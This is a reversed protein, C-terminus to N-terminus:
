SSLGEESGDEGGRQHGRRQTERPQAGLAQPDVLGEGPVHRAHTPWQREAIQQFVNM